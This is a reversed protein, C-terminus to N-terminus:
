KDEQEDIDTEDQEGIETGEAESIDDSPAPAAGAASVVEDDMDDDIADHESDDVVPAPCAADSYLEETVTRKILRPEPMPSVETHTASCSSPSPRRPRKGPKTPEAALIGHGGTVRRHRNAVKRIRQAERARQSLRAYAAIAFWTKGSEHLEALAQAEEDLAAKLRAQAQAIEARAARLRETAEQTAM